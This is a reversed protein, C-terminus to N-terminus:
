EALLPAIQAELEPGTLRGLRAFRAAGRRDIIVTFPLALGADGLDKAIEIAEPVAVLLPYGTPTAKAFEHVNEASDAAIGIFQVGKAATKQQMAAFEPMEQRCPPCWTAWYNVVLVKGRWQDLAQPHGDADNLTSALLRATAGADAVPAAVEQPTALRTRGFWYGAALAALAAAIFLAIRMTNM